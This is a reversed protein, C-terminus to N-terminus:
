AAHGRRRFRGREEEPGGEFDTMGTVAALALGQARFFVSPWDKSFAMLSSLSAIMGAFAADIRGHTPFSIVDAIGGPYDTLMATTTEVAGCTLAAIAARRNRKWLIPVMLLFSGATAYDIIAHTKPSLKKPLRSSLVRVGMDVLAM